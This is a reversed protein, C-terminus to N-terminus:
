DFTRHVYSCPYPSRPVYVSIKVNNERLVSAPWPVFSYEYVAGKTANQKVTKEVKGKCLGGGKGHYLRTQQKIKQIRLPLTDPWHYARLDLFNAVLLESTECLIRM